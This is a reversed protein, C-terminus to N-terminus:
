KPTKRIAQWSMESLYFVLHANPFGTSIDNGGTSVLPLSQETVSVGASMICTHSSLSVYSWCGWLFARTCSLQHGRVGDKSLHVCVYVSECVNACVYVCM